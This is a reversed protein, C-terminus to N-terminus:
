PHAIVLITPAKELVLGLTHRLTQPDLAAFSEDLILADAGQLLARAIYLRSKEGHSLQWGTEGVIQQLGSPMRDLLPGLDLARCIREAEQLDGPRPPWGRGMLLNFALSGMLVYNEHFQPALVVKRRWGDAGLTERDLGHLLLLGSTPTRCGALLRALTTKGGGSPGELLLRDGARVRLEVGRLVPEGRDQYRFVLNSVELLHKDDGSPLPAPAACAGPLHKGNGSPAPLHGAEGWAAEMGPPASRDQGRAPAAPSAAIVFEPQGAPEPRPAAQWFLKVHEWAIVAGTVWELGTVLNRFAQYALLVGGFGAALAGPSDGTLFLPGLGLFGALFWGRPVLAQFAVTTRDLRASTALYREHAQDEGENWLRREEQALRTRHGVMHEVLDNTMDLREETWQRQRRYYRLGLLSAALVTGLLLVVHVRSGAGVGLVLGALVLEVAAMVGLFGGSLAMAEVMESEIVRGLLQGVGLHRVEDPDLKLAGALLRRKLLTGACIAWRGGLSTTLLRFPLLTVLLLLWAMFWGPDLRGQLSMWGLLWWSLIWLAVGLAHAGLLAALMQPLRTERAQVALGADAPTRILWFGDVRTTPLLERLFSKRARERHRGRIGADTLVQEVADAHPAELDRCLAERVIGSAPRAVTARPTLVSLRRRGGRLLALFRPEAPGPLRLLAPGAGQLLQDVEPYTAEVPEAELGLWGAAVEIWAELREGGEAALEEPPAGVEAARVARGSQRGLLELAEGLRSAPWSLATLEETVATGRNTM